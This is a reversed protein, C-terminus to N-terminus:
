ITKSSEQALLRAAEEDSLSELDALMDAVEEPVTNKAQLLQAIQVALGAVTPNEFLARLPIEVQFGERMRSIVQTALLSHGGLDFFNDHIGVRDVRLLQAWIEALSQEVPNRPAVFVEELEPRGPDPLPLAQGDVKGNPTLPLADLIVFASPIMYDPLKSKLFSRLETVTPFQEPKHQLYAVLQKEGPKDERAVVTAQQVAPHQGLVVEIEGLEIRFGRVKVQHDLRGLFQINGDPLYRALDGTRYLRAGPKDGFPNPIFKEATLDPRNLYGRALAVGAIHLEGSVGIPVPELHSDLIYLQTNAIPSGIPVIGRDNEYESERKCAWYTVDISAETPGYTNHLEADLRDFFSDRLEVPLLEGGSFVTKLSDCIKIGPEELIAELMSPVFGAVTIGREAILRVLYASDQQSGPQALVLRAGAVLSTFIEWTAFDFSLSFAHLVRDRDTLQYAEQGWLFRNCIGRQSVMVGKPEGTSGSTYVVYALNDPTTEHPPSESNWQAIQEWDEDLCVVVPNRMESRTLIGIDAFSETFKKKTLLVRLPADQLMFALRRHPYLPDLPVYAGGAKLIGLLAVMMEVSREMYIGVLVERGVGLSKLYHALQNARRNLEGYTLQQDEFVVAVADPAREVQSEVLQHVCKDEPYDRPTDNWEVLFQRETETLLPLTAITQDPDAVIGESLVQFQRIMRSITTGDFLDTRYSLGGELGEETEALVLSLDFMATERNITVPSVTSGSLKLESEPTNQLVFMVQFLPTYSLSRELRLEEILKEFPVDQHAYAGLAVQRVRGLLERFSPNGSSDTRLVLTNIFFGILSELEARNRGAIPSAVVIDEQGTLRSLLTQFAALLTMFLTCGEQRSLTKLAETLAKSLVLFQNSGRFSQGAPRPHDIPLELLEPAGKLQKKWYDLQRELVEGQLWERQWVAFDAYQIPLEPLPSPEGRCFARYLASLERFFIGMSWGDSVIHHITFLLIQEQEDLRVLVVRLLPDQVLDFSRQAEKMVIQQVEAEREAEPRKSLDVLLPTLTLNPTILQVPQGDMVGFNTRLVEHRRVIENLSQELAAVNLPGAVLFAASINYASSGPELQDFFWLRQQAFSTPFVFVEKEM